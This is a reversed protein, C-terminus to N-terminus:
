HYGNEKAKEVTLEILGPGKGGTVHDESTGMVEPFWSNEVGPALLCGKGKQRKM